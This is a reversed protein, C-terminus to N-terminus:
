KIVVNSGCSSNSSFAMQGANGDRSGSNGDFAYYYNIKCDFTGSSNANIRTGNMSGEAYLYIDSGTQNKVTVNNAKGAAEARRNNEQIARWEPTDMMDANYKNIAKYMMERNSELAEVRKKNYPKSNWAPEVQKQMALANKIYQQAINAADMERLKDNVRLVTKMEPNSGAIKRMMKEKLSLKKKKKKGDGEEEKLFSEHVLIRYPVHTSPDDKRFKWNFDFIMGDIVAVHVTRGDSFERPIKGLQEQHKKNGMFYEKGFTVPFAYNNVVYNYDQGDEEIVFYKHEVFNPDQNVEKLVLTEPYLDYNYGDKKDKILKVSRYNGPQLTNIQKSQDEVNQATILATFFLILLGSSLFSRRNKM